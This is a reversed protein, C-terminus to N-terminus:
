HYSQTPPEDVLSRVVNAPVHMLRQDLAVLTLAFARAAETVETQGAPGGLREAVLALCEWDEHQCAAIMAAGLCEDRCILRCGQCFTKPEEPRWLFLAKVWQSLPGLAQRAGIQGLTAAYLNWAEGWPQIDRTVYGAAWLRLGDVVLREPVHELYSRAGGFPCNSDPAGVFGGRPRGWSPPTVRITM